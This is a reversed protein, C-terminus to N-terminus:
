CGPCRPQHLFRPTFLQMQWFQERRVFLSFPVGGIVDSYVVQVSVFSFFILDVLGINKTTRTERLEPLAGIGLDFNLCSLFTIMLFSLYSM